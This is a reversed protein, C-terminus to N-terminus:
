RRYLANVQKTRSGRFFPSSALRKGVNAGVDARRFYNRLCFLALSFKLSLDILVINM